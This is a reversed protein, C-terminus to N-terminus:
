SSRDFSSRIFIKFNTTQIARQWDAPKRPDRKVMGAMGVQYTVNFLGAKEGGSQNNLGTQILKYVRIPREIYRTQLLPPFLGSTLLAKIIKKIWNTKFARHDINKKPRLDGNAPNISITKRQDAMTNVM